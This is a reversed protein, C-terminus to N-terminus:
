ANDQEISLPLSAVQRGDVTVEVSHLGYRHFLPYFRTYLGYFKATTTFEADMVIPSIKDRGESDILRIKIIHDGADEPSHQISMALTLPREEPLKDFQLVHIGCGYCNFLGNQTTDVCDALFAYEVRMSKSKGTQGFIFIRNVMVQGKDM